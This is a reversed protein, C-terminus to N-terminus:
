EKVETQTGKHITVEAPQAREAMIREVNSRLGERKLDVRGANYRWFAALNTLLAFVAGIIGSINKALDESDAANVIGLSVFMMVIGVAVQTLMGVFETSVVKSFFAGQNVEPESTIRYAPRPEEFTMPRRENM